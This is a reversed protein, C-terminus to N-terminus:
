RGSSKLYVVWGPRCTGLIIFYGINTGLENLILVFKILDVGFRDLRCFANSPELLQGFYIHSRAVCGRIWDAELKM